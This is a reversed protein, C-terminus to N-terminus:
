CFHHLSSHFRCLCKGLYWRFITWCPLCEDYLQVPAPLVHLARTWALKRYFVAFVFTTLKICMKYPHRIQSRCCASVEGGFVLLFHACKSVFNLTSWYFLVLYAFEFDWVTLTQYYDFYVKFCWDMDSIIYFCLVHCGRNNTM